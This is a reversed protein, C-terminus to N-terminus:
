VGQPVGEAGDDSWGALMGQLQCGGHEGWSGGLIAIKM